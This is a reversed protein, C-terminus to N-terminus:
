KKSPLVLPCAPIGGRSTRPCTRIVRTGDVKAARKGNARLPAFPHNAVPQSQPDAPEPCQIVKSGQEASDYLLYPHIIECQSRLPTCSSRLRHHSTEQTDYQTEDANWCSSRAGEPNSRAPGSREGRKRRLHIAKNSGLSERIGVEHNTSLKTRMCTQDQISLRLMLTYEETDPPCRITYLRGFRGTQCVICHSIVLSTSTIKKGMRVVGYM